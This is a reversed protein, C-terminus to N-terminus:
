TSAKQQEDGPDGICFRIRLGCKLALDSLQRVDTDPDIMATGLRIYALGANRMHRLPDIVEAIPAPEIQKKAM